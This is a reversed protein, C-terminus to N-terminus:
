VSYRSFLIAQAGFIYNHLMKSGIQQGGIDWISLAVHVDGPLVIKKLFLDVGLTQKYRKAFHDQCFKMVVSTKGVAGDGLVV